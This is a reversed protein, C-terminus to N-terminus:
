IGVRTRLSAKAKTYMKRRAAAKSAYNFQLITDTDVAALGACMVAHYLLLSVRKSITGQVIGIFEDLDLVPVLPHVFQAYRRLIVLVLEQPPFSFCGCKQLYMLDEFDLDSSLPKIYSPLSPTLRRDEHM